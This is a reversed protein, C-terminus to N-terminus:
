VVPGFARLTALTGAAQQARRRAVILQGRLHANEDRLAALDDGAAAYAIAEAACCDRATTLEAELQAIRVAADHTYTGSLENVRTICAACHQAYARIDAGCITCATTNAILVHRTAPTQNNM